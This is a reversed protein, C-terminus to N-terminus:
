RVVVDCGVYEELLGAKDSAARLEAGLTGVATSAPAAEIIISSGHDRLARVDIVRQTHTRDLGDAIRLVSALRVVLSREQSPLEMFADHREKPHARRHYRALLALLARDVDSTGPWNCGRVIRASHKHHQKYRVMVGVDHVLAAAHLLLSQQHMTHGALERWECLEALSAFLRLSLHAVHRSHAATAHPTHPACLDLLEGAHALLSTHRTGHRADSALLEGKALKALLGERVGGAIIRIHSAQMRHLAREAAILGCLIIDARDSSVGPLEDRRSAPMSALADICERIEQVSIVGVMAAQRPDKRDVTLGRKRAVIALLTTLTGGVGLVHLPRQKTAKVRPKISRKMLKDCLAEAIKRETSGTLEESQKGDNPEAESRVRQSLAIAGLPLSARDIVIGHLAQTLQLSGGGIDLVACPGLTVPAERMAADFSARAEDGASLVQLQVGAGSAVADIFERQNRASRVAATAVCLPEAGAGRAIAAFRAIADVSRRMARPALMNAESDRSEASSVEGQKKSALKGQEDQAEDSESHKEALRTMEREDALVTWTAGDDEVRVCSMRVSSSGVDIV